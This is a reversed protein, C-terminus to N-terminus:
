MWFTGFESPLDPLDLLDQYIFSANRGCMARILESVSGDRRETVTTEVTLDNRVVFEVQLIEGFSKPNKCGQVVYGVLL